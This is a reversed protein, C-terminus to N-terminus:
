SSLHLTYLPIERNNLTYYIKNQPESNLLLSKWKASAAGWEYQGETDLLDRFPRLKAVGMGQNPISRRDFCM